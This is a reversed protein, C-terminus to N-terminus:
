LWSAAPLSCLCHSLAMWLHLALHVCRFFIGGAVGGFLLYTGVMLPIIVVPEYLALCQAAV